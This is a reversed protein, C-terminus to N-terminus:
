MGLAARVQPGVDGDVKLKAGRQFGRTWADTIVDYVGNVPAGLVRQYEAVDEGMVGLTLVRRKAPAPADAGVEKWVAHMDGHQQLLARARDSPSARMGGWQFHPLDQMAWDGGWDCGHRKFIAAVKGWWAAPPSWHLTSHIVDVALGFGHWSYLNSRANTVPREPPKVTRGRAYYIRQLEESRYTEYVMANLGAASCEALAAMVAARFRPALLDLDRTPKASADANMGASM